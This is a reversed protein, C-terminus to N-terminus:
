RFTVLEVPNHIVDEQKLCYVEVTEEVTQLHHTPVVACANSFEMAARNVAPEGSRGYLGNVMQSFSFFLFFSLM